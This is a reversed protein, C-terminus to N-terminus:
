RPHAPPSKLGAEVCTDPRDGGFWADILLGLKDLGSADLRGQIARFPGEVVVPVSVPSGSVQALPHLKLAVTEAGLDVQGAGDLKLLTTDVAITRFRGVGKSFSGVLGLCEIAADGQTPAEIGLLGLSAGALKLFAANGLSGRLMTASVPGDLTAALDRASRASGHLRLDVQVAGTAEGPLGAYRAISALPLGPAHLTLDAPVDGATADAALEMGLRGGPLAVDLRGADLRGGKLKVELGVQRWPQRQLTMAAIAAKLNVQPGRLWAWPWAADSFLPGSASGAAAHSAPSVAALGHGLGYLLADLDLRDSRLAGDLVLAPGFGITVDGAVDGERALLKADRLRMPGPHAPIVLQGDLSVDNLAPLSPALPRLDALAPTRLGIRADLGDFRLTDLALKGRLILSGTAAGPAQPTRAGAHVALDIPADARGDLRQPVGITGDLTLAQGAFAGSSAVRALGGAAPLSVDTAGLALGPAQGRLDAGDFHLQTAGIAPLGGPAAGNAVRTALRVGHLAPLQMEPLLANLRELAPAEGTIALDYDGALNMAGKAVATAGFATFSLQTSWPGGAGSTPQASARVSFPQFDSYVLTAALDLPGDDMPQRLDLSRIGVVRTRPPLRATVMGDQVHVNRIRLTFPAAAWAAPASAPRPSRALVWNREGGVQELLINPGVLTLHTVEIRRWLLAPLWVQAEIREARAMDSRSGGPLNALTVDTAVITPWFSRTVSLAGNLALERGTEARVAAVIQRRYDNPDLLAVGAGLSGLSLMALLAGGGAWWARKRM